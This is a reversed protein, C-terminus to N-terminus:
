RAHAEIDRRWRAGILAGRLRFAGSGDLPQPKKRLSTFMRGADQRKRDGGIPDACREVNPMNEIIREADAKYGHSGEQYPGLFPDHIAIAEDDNRRPVPCEM